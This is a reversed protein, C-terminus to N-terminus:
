LNQRFPKRPCADGDKGGIDLTIQRANAGFAFGLIEDRFTSLVVYSSWFAYLALIACNLLAFIVALRRTLSWQLEPARKSSM